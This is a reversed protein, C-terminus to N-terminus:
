LDDESLYYFTILVTIITMLITVVGANLIGHFCNMFTNHGMVTGFFALIASITITGVVFFVFPIVIVLLCKGIFTLLKM